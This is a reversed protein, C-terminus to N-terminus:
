PKPAGATGGAETGPQVRDLLSGALRGLPGAKELEARLAALDAARREPSTRDEFPIDARSALWLGLRRPMEPDRMTSCVRRRTKRSVRRGPMFAPESAAVLDLNVWEDGDSDRNTDLELRHGEFVDRVNSGYRRRQTIRGSGVRWEVRGRALRVAGWAIAVAVACALLALPLTSRETLARGLVSFAVGAVAVAILATVTAQQRRARPSSVLVREGEPTIVEEWGEPLGGEASRAVEQLGLERRLEDVAEQREAPTGLRSLAVVARATEAVIVGARGRTRIGRLQDRPIRRGSRFPGRLHSVALGDPNVVLRDEGWLMLLLERIAMVGGFTWLTLWVLLFVGAALAPGPGLPEHGGPGPRSTLVGHAGWALFWLAFAEGVAWGCLWVALFAAGVYRGAGKSRLRLEYGEATHGGIM